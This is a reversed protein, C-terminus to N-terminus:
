LVFRGLHCANTKCFLLYSVFGFPLSILYCLLTLVVILRGNERVLNHFNKRISRLMGPYTPRLLEGTSSPWKRYAKDTEINNMWMIASDRIDIGYEQPGESTDLALLTTLAEGEMGVLSFNCPILTLMVYCVSSSEYCVKCSYIRNM